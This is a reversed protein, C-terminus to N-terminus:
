PIKIGHPNLNLSGSNSTFKALMTYKLDSGSSAVDGTLEGLGPDCASLV